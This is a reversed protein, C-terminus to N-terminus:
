EGRASQRVVPFAVARARARQVCNGCGYRSGYVGLRVGVAVSVLDGHCPCVQVARAVPCVCYMRVRSLVNAACARRTQEHSLVCGRPLFPITAPGVFLSALAFFPLALRLGQDDPIEAQLESKGQRDLQRLIAKGALM